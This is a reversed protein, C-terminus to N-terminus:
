PQWQASDRTVLTCFIFQTHCKQDTKRGTAGRRPANMAPADPIRETRKKTTETDLLTHECAGSTKRRSHWVSTPRIKPRVRRGFVGDFIGMESM